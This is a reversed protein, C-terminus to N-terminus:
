RCNNMSSIRRPSVKKELEKDLVKNGGDERKERRKSSVPILSSEEAMNRKNSLESSAESSAQDIM